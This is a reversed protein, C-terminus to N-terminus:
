KDFNFRRSFILFLIWKLRGFLRVIRAWFFIKNKNETWKSIRNKGWTWYARSFANPQKKKEFKNQRISSSRQACKNATVHCLWIDGTIQCVTSYSNLHSSEILQRTSTDRNFLRDSRSNMFAKKEHVCFYVSSEIHIAHTHTPRVCHAAPLSPSLPLARSRFLRRIRVFVCVRVGCM